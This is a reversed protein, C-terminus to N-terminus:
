GGAQGIRRLDTPPESRGNVEVVCTCMSDHRLCDPCRALTSNPRRLPLAHVVADRYRYHAPEEPGQFWEDGGGSEVWECYEEYTRRPYDAMEERMVEGWLHDLHRARGCPIGIRADWRHELVWNELDMMFNDLDRQEQPAM